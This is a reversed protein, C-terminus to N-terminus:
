KSLNNLKQQLENIKEEQEIVYLTLEEIKQLLKIQMESMNIGSSYMEVAPPIEPLHKNENIFKKVEGLPILTYNPSFVFDAGIGNLNVLIERARITGYVDLKYQPSSTGIGVNGGNFFSDGNSHLKVRLEHSLDPFAEYMEFDSTLEAGEYGGPRIEIRNNKYNGVPSGMMLSHGIWQLHTVNWGSIDPHEKNSHIYVDGDSSWYGGLPFNTNGSITIEKKFIQNGTFTNGSCTALEIWPYPNNRIPRVIYNAADQNLANSTNASFFTRFYLRNNGAATGIQFQFNATDNSAYNVFIQQLATGTHPLGLHRSPTGAYAGSPITAGNFTTLTVASGTGISQPLVHAFIFACLSTFIVRKM